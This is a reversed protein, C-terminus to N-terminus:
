LEPGHRYTALTSLLGILVAAGRYYTRSLHPALGNHEHDGSSGARGDSSACLTGGMLHRGAGVWDDIEDWLLM